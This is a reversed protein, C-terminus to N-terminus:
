RPPYGRPHRRRSYSIMNTNQRIRGNVTHDVDGKTELVLLICEAVIDTGVVV